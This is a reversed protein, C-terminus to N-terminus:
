TNEDEMPETVTTKGNMYDQAVIEKAAEIHATVKDHIRSYLEERFKVADGDLAYDIIKTADTM